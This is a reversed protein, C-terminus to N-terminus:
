SGTGIVRDIEETDTIGELVKLIGDQRMTLQGQNAAEKQLEYESPEQLVIKEVEPTILIIEFVGIRGRYGAGNCKACGTGAATFIKWYKHDPISVKPPFRSIEEDIKKREAPSLDKGIKCSTCLKRVLRQAMTVNLAPAISASKVGLNLLRPIAGAANNTHLTSFVLHGTLAANMATEATEFDRIEGVLIVDPDQRVIARLGNAFDYGKEADVQTQEVGTLHYEIPDELTIIKVEPTHIKKLFAYLATTKGSGTPGTTLVMGNPKKIEQELARIVDPQMGLEEFSIQIAKPNLIRLVTNEGDPGPLTSTRVEIEGVRTKITFRGDQAKDHVNLKLESILKIRSLLLAYFRKPLLLIDHLVGDLRFRLRVQEKQPEIHVDSADQALAGALIVELAESTKGTFTTQIRSRIAPLDTVEKSLAELKEESIQITGSEDGHRKPIREYYSWAHELGHRSVLFLDYTYGNKQLADLSQKTEARDPSVLVVKLNKDSIQVVAMFGQRAEYEPLVRLADIEIPLTSIDAYPLRYKQALLAVSREEEKQRLIEFKRKAKEESFQAM